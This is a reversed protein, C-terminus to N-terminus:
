LSQIIDPLLSGVPNLLGIGAFTRWQKGSLQNVKSWKKQVTVIMLFFLLATSSAILLMEFHTQYKLAVKLATAITSWSLVAAGAYIVAQTNAKM